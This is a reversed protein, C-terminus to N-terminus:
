GMVPYGVAVEIEVAGRRLQHEPLGQKQCWARQSLGSALFTKIREDWLQQKAKNGIFVL